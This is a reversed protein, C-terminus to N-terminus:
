RCRANRFARKQSLAKYIIYFAPVPTHFNRLVAYQHPRHLFLQLLIPSGGFTFSLAITLVDTSKTVQYDLCKEACKDWGINCLCFVVWCNAAYLVSFLAFIKNSDFYNAIYANIKTFAQQLANLLFRIVSM